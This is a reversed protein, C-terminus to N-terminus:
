SRAFNTSVSLALRLSAFVHPAAAHWSSFAQLFMLWRQGQRHRNPTTTTPGFGFSQGLGFGPKQSRSVSPCLVLAELSTRFQTETLSTTRSATTARICCSGTRPLSTDSPGPPLSRTSSTRWTTSWCKLRPTWGWRGM